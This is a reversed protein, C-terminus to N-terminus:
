GEKVMIAKIEHMHYNELHVFMKTANDEICWHGDEFKTLCLSGSLKWRAAIGMTM